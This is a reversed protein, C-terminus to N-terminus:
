RDRAKEYERLARQTQGEAFYIQALLRHASGAERPRATRALLKKAVERAETFEETAILARVQLRMLEAAPGANQIAQALADAARQGEGLALLAQAEYRYGAPNKPSAVQLARAADLLANYDKKVLSVRAVVEHRQPHDGLAPDGVMALAGDLRGKAALTEALMLRRETDQAIYRELLAPDQTLAVVESVVLHRPAGLEEATRYELMAQERAGLRWLAAGAYRHPVHELPARVMSRNIWALAKPASEPDQLAHAGITLPIVFDAPHRRAIAAADELYREFSATQSLAALRASDATVEYAVARAGVVVVLGIAALASVAIVRRPLRWFREKGSSRHRRRSRHPNAVVVTAVLVAPLAVGTLALNFDALNHVALYLLGSVGAIRLPDDGLRRFAVVFSWLALVVLLTGVGVGWDVFPQVWENELHTFTKSLSRGQHMPYVFGLAGRGVGFAWHDSLLGPVAELIFIKPVANPDSLTWLEHVIESYALSGALLLAVAMALQATLLNRGTLRERLFLLAACVALAGFFALIGGRSLTLVVGSACLVGCGAWAFRTRERTSLVIGLSCFAALGMLAAAHNPNIFSTPFPPKSEAVGYASQWGVLQHLLGLGFVLAGTLAIAAFLDRPRRVYLEAALVAGALLVILKILEHQTAPPD